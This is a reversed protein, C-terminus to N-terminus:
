VSQAAMWLSCLNALLYGEENPHLVVTFEKLLAQNVSVIKPWLDSQTLEALIESDLKEIVEGRRSRMLASAMHTMLMTGQETYVPLHWEEDLRKVVKLMGSCIDKDIVGAECLLNLRSEM